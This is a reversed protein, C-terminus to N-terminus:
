VTVSNTVGALKSEARNQKIWPKSSIIWMNGEYKNQKFYLWYATRSSLPVLRLRIFASLLILCSAYKKQPQANHFPPSGTNLVM